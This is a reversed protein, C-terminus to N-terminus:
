CLKKLAEDLESLAVQKPQEKAPEVQVSVTVTAPQMPKPQISSNLTEVEIAPAAVQNQPEAAKASKLEKPQPMQVTTGTGSIAIVLPQLATGNAGTVEVASKDKLKGTQERILAMLIPVNPPYTKQTEARFVQGTDTIKIVEDPHSWGKASQLATAILESSCKSRGSELAESFSKHLKKWQILTQPTISLRAAIEVDKLAVVAFHYALEDHKGKDYKQRVKNGKWGVRETYHRYPKRKKPKQEGKLRLRKGRKQKKKLPPETATAPLQTQDIDTM